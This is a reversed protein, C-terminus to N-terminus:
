RSISVVMQGTLPCAPAGTVYNVYSIKFNTSNLNKCAALIEYPSAIYVRTFIDDNSAKLMFIGKSSLGLFDLIINRIVSLLGYQSINYRNNADFILVGDGDLFGYADRIFEAPDESHGIVNWLATVFSFQENHESSYQSLTQNILTCKHDLIQSAENFMYASPELCIIESASIEKMLTALRAGNGTGIDLWKNIDRDGAATIVIADIAKIYRSRAKSAASYLPGIHNYYKSSNAEIM